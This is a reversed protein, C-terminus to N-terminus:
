EAWSTHATPSYELPLLPSPDCGNSICQFPRSQAKTGAGRVPRPPASLATTARDASSTQVAPERSSVEPVIKLGSSMCQSPCAQLTTSAGPAPVRQAMDATEALSM